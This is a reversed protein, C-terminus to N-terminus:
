CAFAGESPYGAMALSAWASVLLLALAIQAIRQGGRALGAMAAASLGLTILCFVPALLPTLDAFDLLYSWGGAFLALAVVVILPQVAVAIGIAAAVVVLIVVTRLRPRWRATVAWGIMLLASVVLGIAFPETFWDKWQAIAHVRPPGGEHVGEDGGCDAFFGPWEPGFAAIVTVTASAAVIAGLLFLWSRRPM